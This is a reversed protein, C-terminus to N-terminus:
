GDDVEVDYGDDQACDAHCIEDEVYVVDDGERILLDCMGCRGGDRAAVFAKM